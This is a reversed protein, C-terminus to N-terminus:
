PVNPLFTPTQQQVVRFRADAIETGDVELAVKYGGLRELDLNIPLAMPLITEDPHEMLPSRGANFQALVSGRDEDTVTTEAGPLPEAISIKRNDLTEYLSIKVRHFQNHATWPVHILVAVCFGVRHTGPADQALVHAAGAGVVYLKGMHVQAYDCIIVSADLKVRWTTRPDKHIVM